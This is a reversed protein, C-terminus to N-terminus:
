KDILTVVLGNWSRNILTIIENDATQDDDDDDDTIVDEEM